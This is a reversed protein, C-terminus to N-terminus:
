WQGDRPGTGPTTLPCWCGAGTCDVRFHGMLGVLGVLLGGVLGLRLGLLGQLARPTMNANNQPAKWMM